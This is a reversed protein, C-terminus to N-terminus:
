ELRGEQLKIMEAKISDALGIGGAETIIKGYEQNLMSRYIDESQGGGFMPDVEVGKFMHGLMESLFVAELEEAAANIEDMNQPANAKRAANDSANKAISDIGQSIMSQAIADM